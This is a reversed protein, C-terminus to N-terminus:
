PQFPWHANLGAQHPETDFVLSRSLTVEAAAREASEGPLARHLVTSNHFLVWTNAPGVLRGSEIELGGHARDLPTFYIMIKFIQPPMGDTHWSYMGTSAHEPYDLTPLAPTSYVRINLVRWPSGLLAAVPERLQKLCTRVLQDLPGTIVRFISTEAMAREVDAPFEATSWGPSTFGSAFRVCRANFVINSAYPYSQPFSAQVLKAKAFEASRGSQWHWSRVRVHRDYRHWEDWGPRAKRARRAQWGSRLGRIPWPLQM